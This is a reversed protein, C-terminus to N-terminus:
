PGLICFHLDAVAYRRSPSIMAGPIMTAYHLGRIKNDVHKISQIMKYPVRSLFGRDREGQRSNESERV